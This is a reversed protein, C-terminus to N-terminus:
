KLVKILRSLTNSFENNELFVLNCGSLVSCVAMSVRLIDKHERFAHFEEISRQKKGIDKRRRLLINDYSSEIVVIIDPKLIEIPLSLVYGREFHDMGHLDVLVNSKGKIELAAARWINHQIHVDLSFLEPLDYALDDRGAISLMLEGYNVYNYGLYESAQRCLSTKGVGPVGVAAALNWHVM